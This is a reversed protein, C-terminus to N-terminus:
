IHRELRDRIASGTRTSAFILIVTPIDAKESHYIIDVASLFTPLLPYNNNLLDCCELHEALPQRWYERGYEHRTLRKAICTCLFVVVKVLYILFIEENVIRYEMFLQREYNTYFIDLSFQCFGKSRLM